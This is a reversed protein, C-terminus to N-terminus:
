AYDDERMPRFLSVDECRVLTSFVKLATALAAERTREQVFLGEVEDCVLLWWDDDQKLRLTITEGAELEWAKRKVREAIVQRVQPRKLHETAVQTMPRRKRTRKRRKMYRRKRYRALMVRHRKVAAALCHAREGALGCPLVIERDNPLKQLEEILQKVTMKEEDEVVGIKLPPFM